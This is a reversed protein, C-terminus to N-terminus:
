KQSLAKSDTTRKEASVRMMTEYDAQAEQEETKAETLEKDLDKILLDIMAVVGTSEESKKAYADWTEPPPAPADRRLTKASVQVLATIGTGAIGGPAETPPPTGGNSVFIREERSLEQKPPAKFLKPNYFKNLRNKAWGLVEKAATDSTM